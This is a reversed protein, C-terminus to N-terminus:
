TSATPSGRWHGRAPRSSTARSLSGTWMSSRLVPGAATVTSRNNIFRIDRHQRGGSWGTYEDGVLTKLSGGTVVNNSVEINRVPADLDGNAAFFSGGFCNCRNFTGITNNTFVVNIAGEADVNPEIDFAHIAINDFSAREV